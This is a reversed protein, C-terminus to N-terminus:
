KEANLCKIFEELKEQIQRVREAFAFAFAFAFIFFSIFLSVFYKEFELSWAFCSTSLEEALQVRRGTLLQEKKDKDQSYVELVEKIEKEFRRASFCKLIKRM